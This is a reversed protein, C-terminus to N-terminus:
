PLVLWVLKGVKSGDRTMLVRPEPYTFARYSVGSVTVTELSYPDVMFADLVKNIINLNSTYNAADVALGNNLERQYNLPLKSKILDNLEHYESNTKIVPKITVTSM